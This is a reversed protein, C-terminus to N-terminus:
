EGEIFELFAAVDEPHQTYAGVGLVCTDDYLEYETMLRSGSIDIGVAVPETSYEEDYPVAYVFRDKYKDFYAAYAEAELDLLRGSAGLAVLNEKEMVVADLHGAEVTAVFMQYYNNNTGSYSTADFYCTDNFFVNKKSLDYGRDSVFEEMLESEVGIQPRINVFTVYFWYDKTAFLVHYLFYILFIVGATIGVIPLWYYEWIYRLKQKQTM